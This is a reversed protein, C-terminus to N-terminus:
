FYRLLFDSRYSNCFSDANKETINELAYQVPVTIGKFIQKFGQENYISGSKIYFLPSQKM